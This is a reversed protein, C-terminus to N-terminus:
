WSFITSKGALSMHFFEAFSAELISKGQAQIAEPCADTLTVVLSAIAKRLDQYQHRVTQHHPFIQHCEHVQYM